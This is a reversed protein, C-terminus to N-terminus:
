FLFFICALTDPFYKKSKWKQSDLIEMKAESINLLNFFSSIRNIHKNYSFKNRWHFLLFYSRFMINKLRAPAM